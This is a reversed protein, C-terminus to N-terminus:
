TIQPYGYFSHAGHKVPHYHQFYIGHKTKDRNHYGHSEVKPSNLFSAAQEAISKANREEFTYTNLQTPINEITIKMDPSSLIAVAEAESITEHSIYVTPGLVVAVHYETDDSGNFRNESGVKELEFARGFIQTRYYVITTVSTKVITRTTFFGKVWRFFSKVSEVVTTVVTNVIREIYPYCVIVTAVSLLAIAVAVDDVLAICNELLEDELLEYVYFINDEFIFCFEEEDEDYYPYITYSTEESISGGFDEGSRNSLVKIDFVTDEREDSFGINIEYTEDLYNDFNKSIQVTVQGSAEDVFCEYEDFRSMFEEMEDEVSTNYLTDTKITRINEKLQLEDSFKKDISSLYFGLMLVVVLLASIIKRIVTSNKM